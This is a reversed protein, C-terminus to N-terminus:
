TDSLQIGLTLATMWNLLEVWTPLEALDSEEVLKRVRVLGRFNPFNRNLADFLLTTGRRTPEM